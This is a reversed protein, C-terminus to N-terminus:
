GGNRKNQANKIEWDSIVNSAVHLVVVIVIVVTTLGFIGFATM